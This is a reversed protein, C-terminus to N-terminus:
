LDLIFTYRKLTFNKEIIDRFNNGDDETTVILYNTNTINNKAYIEKKSAWRELYDTTDLGNHEWYYMKGNLPNRITFDPYIANYYKFKLQKEYQYDIKYEYLLDALIKESKSRVKEGRNTIWKLENVKYPNQSHIPPHDCNNIEAKELLEKSFPLCTKLAQLNFNLEKQITPLEEKKALLANILYSDKKRSLYKQERVGNTTFHHYFAPYKGKKHLILSGPPYNNITDQLIKIKDYYRKTQELYNYEYAKM